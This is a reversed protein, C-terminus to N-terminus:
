EGGKVSNGWADKKWSRQEAYRPLNERVYLEGVLFSNGIEKAAEVSDSNNVRQHLELARAKMEEEEVRPRVAYGGGEAVTIISDLLIREEQRKM